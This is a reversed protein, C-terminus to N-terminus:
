NGTRRAGWPPSTVNVFFVVDERGSFGNIFELAEANCRKRVEVWSEGERERFVREDVAPKELRRHKSRYVSVTHVGLDDADCQKVFQVAEDFELGMADSEYYADKGDKTALFWYGPGESPPLWAEDSELVAMAESAPLALEADYTQYISLYGKDLLSKIAERALRLKGESTKSPYLSNVRWALEWLGTCDENADSLAEREVLPMATM